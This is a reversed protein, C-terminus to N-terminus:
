SECSYSYQHSALHLFEFAATVLKFVDCRRIGRFSKRSHESWLRWRRWRGCEFRRRCSSTLRRPLSADRLQTVAAHVGDCEGVERHLCFHLCDKIFTVESTRRHSEVESATTCLRSALQPIRHKDLSSRCWFPSGARSARTSARLYMWM